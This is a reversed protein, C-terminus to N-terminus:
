DREAATVRTSQFAALRWRGDNEVFVQFTRVRFPDRGINKTDIYATLVATKGLVRIEISSLPLAEYTSRESATLYQAKNQVTSGNSHVFILDDALFRDLAAKDRRVIATTWGLAAEHIGHAPGAAYDHSSGNVAHVSQAGPGGTSLPRAASSASSSLQWQGQKEVYLQMVRMSTPERGPQKTEVYGSVVATNDYVRVVPGERFAFTECTPPNKVISAIYDAKRQVSRGDAKAFYLDETLLRELAAQDQKVIAETWANAARHVADAPPVASAGIVAGLLLLIQRM